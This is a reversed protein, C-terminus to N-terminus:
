PMDQDRHSRSGAIGEPAGMMHFPETLRVPEQLRTCGITLGPPDYCARLARSVSLHGSGKIM